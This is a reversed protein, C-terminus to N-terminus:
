KEIEEHSQRISEINMRRGFPIRAAFSRWRYPAFFLRGPDNM